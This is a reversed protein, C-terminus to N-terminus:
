RQIPVITLCNPVIGKNNRINEWKVQQPGMKNTDDFAPFEQCSNNVVSECSEGPGAYSLLVLYDGNIIISSINEGGLTPAVTYICKGNEDYKMCDKKEEPVNIFDLKDLEGLYLPGIDRNTIKKYGNTKSNCYSILDNISGFPQNIKDYCPERYFYVGDGGPSFDYQYVSASSPALGSIPPCNSNPDVYQCKGWFGPNEYLISVYYTDNEDDQVINVSNIVTDFQSVNSTDPQIRTNSCNTQPYFYVGPSKKEETPPPPAPQNPKNLSFIALQPNITTVILYTLLLILLGSIAGTVRDKANALYDPKAPSLLWTAGAIVLGLFVAFFGVFMGANFLYFAFDPLETTATLTKGMIQPYQVELDAASAILGHLCWFGASLLIFFCIGAFLLKKYNKLM